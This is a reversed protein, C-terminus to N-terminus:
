LGLSGVPLVRRRRKSHGDQDQRDHSPSRSAQASPPMAPILNNLLIVLCRDASMEGFQAELSFDIVGDPLIAALDGHQRIAERLVRCPSLTGFNWYVVAAVLLAVAATLPANWIPTWFQGGSPQNRGREAVGWRGPDAFSDQSSTLPRRWRWFRKM